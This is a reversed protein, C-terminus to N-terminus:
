GPPAAYAAILTQALLREAEAPSLEGALVAEVASMALSRIVRMRWAPPLDDRLEGRAQATAMWQLMPDDGATQAHEDALADHGALYRFRQGIAISSRAIAGMVQPLPPDGATAARSAADAERAVETMLARLLEERTPFHRYVTTRTLGSAAAVQSMSAEPDDSLVRMAAAVVADRNRRADARAPPDTPM